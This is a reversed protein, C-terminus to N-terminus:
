ILSHIRKYSFKECQFFFQAKLKLDTSLPTPEKLFLDALSINLPSYLQAFDSLSYVLGGEISEWITFLRVNHKEAFSALSSEESLLLQRVLNKQFDVRNPSKGLNVSICLLDEVVKALKLKNIDNCYAASLYFSGETTGLWFGCKPCNGIAESAAFNNINNKCSPCYSELPRKHFACFDIEKLLWILPIYIAKEKAKWDAYCDPCWKRWRSILNNLRFIDEWRGMTMSVLYPQKTLYQLGRAANFSINSSGCIRRAFHHFYICRSPANLRFPNGMLPLLRLNILTTASVAHVYALRLIYSPLSEVFPTGIGIPELPYIERRPKIRPLSFDLESYCELSDFEITTKM